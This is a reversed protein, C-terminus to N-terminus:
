EQKSPLNDVMVEIVEKVSSGEKKCFSSPFFSESDIEMFEEAISGMRSKNPTSSASPGRKMSSM